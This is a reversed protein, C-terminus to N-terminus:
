DISIVTGKKYGLQLYNNMWKRIYLKFHREDTHSSILITKFVIVETGNEKTFKCKMNHAVLREM